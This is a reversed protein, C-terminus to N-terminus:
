CRGLSLKAACLFLLCPAFLHSGAPQSAQTDRAIVGLSCLVEPRVGTLSRLQPLSFLSKSDWGSRLTWAVAPVQSCAHV